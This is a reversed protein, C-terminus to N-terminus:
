AGLLKKLEKKNVQFFFLLLMTLLSLVLTSNFSSLKRVKGM